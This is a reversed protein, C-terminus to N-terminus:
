APSTSCCPWAAGAIACWTTSSPATTKRKRRRRWASCPPPSPSAPKTPCRTAWRRRRSKEMRCPRACCCARRPASRWRPWRGCAATARKTSPLATPCCACCPRRAPASATPWSASIRTNWNSRSAARWAGRAGARSLRGPGPAAARGAAPDDRRVSPGLAAGGATSSRRGIHRHRLAAIRHRGAFLGAPVPVPVAGTRVALVAPYASAPCRPLHKGLRGRVPDAPRACVAVARRGPCLRRGVPARHPEAARADAAREARGMRDHFQHDRDGHAGPLKRPTVAKGVSLRRLLGQGAWGTKRSPILAWVLLILYVLLNWGIIFLLPASLLDVRHPDAVRDLLAGAFLALIPLAAWIGPLGLGRRQFSAFAPTREALRKIIQESRQELFHEQTLAAKSDAAQWAALERASRSAYKRDDESLVQHGTDASEIARVLVVRRAVQENM